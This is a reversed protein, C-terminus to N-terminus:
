NEISFRKINDDGYDKYFVPFKTLLRGKELPATHFQLAMEKIEKMKLKLDKEECQHKFEYQFLAKLSEENENLCRNNIFTEKISNYIGANDFTFENSLPKSPDLPVMGAKKFGSEINSNSLAVGMAQTFCELIMDRIDGTKLKSKNAITVEDEVIKLNFQEM